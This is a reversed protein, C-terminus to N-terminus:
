LILSGSPNKQKKEEQLFHVCVGESMREKTDIKFISWLLLWDEGMTLFKRFPVPDNEQMM